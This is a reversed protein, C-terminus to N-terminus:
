MVIIYINYKGTHTSAIFNSTILYFVIVFIVVSFIYVEIHWLRHATLCLFLGILSILPSIVIDVVPLVGKCTGDSEFECAYTVAPVYATAQGDNSALVNYVVGDGAYSDVVLKKYGGADM